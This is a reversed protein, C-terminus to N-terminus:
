QKGGGLRAAWNLISLERLAEANAPNAQIAKEFNQQALEPKGIAKYIYGTFLYARDSKPNLQIARELSELAEKHALPDEPDLQFRSWALMAHFEGEQGYIKVAEEFLRCAQAIEGRRFLEEGRQFRGEAVLVQSLDQGVENKAQEGIALRALYTERQKADQLGDHAATLLNYIQTSLRRVETSAFAYLRDPDNDRALAQYAQAVQSDSADRPLGLVEFFDMRRM